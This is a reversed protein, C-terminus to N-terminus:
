KVGAGASISLSAKRPRDTIARASIMQSTRRSIVSGLPETLAARLFFFYAPKPLKRGSDGLGPQCLMFSQWGPKPYESALSFSQSFALSRGAFFSAKQATRHYSIRQFQFSPLLSHIQYQGTKFLRDPRHRVLKGDGALLVAVGERLEFGQRGPQPFGRGPLRHLAPRHANQDVSAHRGDRLEEGRDVGPAEVHGQVRIHRGVLQARNQLVRLDTQEESRLLIARPQLRQAKGAAEQGRRVRSRLLDLGRLRPLIGGEVHDVGGAGGAPGLAHQLALARHDAEYARMM